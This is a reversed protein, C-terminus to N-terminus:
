KNPDNWLYDKISKDMEIEIDEKYKWKKKELILADFRNLAPGYYEYIGKLKSSSPVLYDFVIQKSKKHYKLSMVANDAFEFIVRKQTRKEMNFIPYGFKVKGNNDVVMVEIIKKNTLLNNGDWALLTYINKGLKKNTIIEYYLAGYWNEPTLTKYQPKTIEDSKDTLEILKFHEDDIKLQVFAFYKYTGDHFPVAWNYIKLNDNKLISITKLSDFHHNFSSPKKLIKKLTTAFNDNAEIKVAKTTDSIIINGFNNLRKIEDVFLQSKCLIPFFLLIIYFFQKM